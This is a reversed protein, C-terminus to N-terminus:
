NSKFYKISFTTGKEKVSDVIVKGNDEEIITKSLSLGIGISDKNSGKGKYFRKFINKVDEKDMGKGFDIIKIETYINNDECEILVKSGTYSYEVANKLINTLAETQWNFDCMIKNKCKNNVEVSIEKLDCLNSVNKITKNILEKITVEKRVFSIANADFKALKLISSVLFSMNTIERKIQIVFNVRNEEDMDPNDIMNDLLINISTLPTKLQHSIDELSNKLNIKDKLSNDASERLMVTTKYIEQKLISLKDESLEDIDLEYNKNNIKEICKIIKNIEIDNRLEYRVFLYILIAFMVLLLNIKIIIFKLNIYDNNKIYSDNNMDYGYESLIDNNVKDSNLIKIIEEQEINPYNVEIIEFIANLKYNFNSKYKNYEASNIFMFLLIFITVIILCVFLYKKLYGKNKM